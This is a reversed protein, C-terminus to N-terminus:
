GGRGRCAGKVTHMFALVQVQGSTQDHSVCGAEWGSGFAARGSGPRGVTERKGWGTAERKM